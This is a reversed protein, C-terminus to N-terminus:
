HFITKCLICITHSLQGCDLFLLDYPEQGKSLEEAYGVFDVNHLTLFHNLGLDSATQTLKDASTNKHGFNDIVHLQAPKLKNNYYFKNKLPNNLEDNEVIFLNDSDFLAKLLYISTLGGGIELIRRPRQFMVLNYLLPAVMETGMVPSTLHETSERFADNVM